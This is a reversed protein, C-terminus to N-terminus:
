QAGGDAKTNAAAIFKDRQEKAWERANRVAALGERCRDARDIMAFQRLRTQWYDTRGNSINSAGPHTAYMHLSGNSPSYTMAITYAKGDHGVKPNAYTQLKHMARAGLAGDYLAQRRVVSPDGSPDEAEVFFNPLCPATTITTSPVIYKSLEDRVGVRLSEPPSGDYSDPKADANSETTTIKELNCFLLDQQTTKHTEGLFTPFVRTVVTSETLASDNKDLFRVFDDDTFNSPSVSTQDRQLRALIEDINGPKPANGYGGHGDPFVGSDIMLQEFAPSYPSTTDGVNVDEQPSKSVKPPM